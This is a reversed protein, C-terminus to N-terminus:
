AVARTDQIPAPVAVPQAAAKDKTRRSYSAMLWVAVAFVGVIAYEVNGTNWTLILAALAFSILFMQLIASAIAGVVFLAIELVKAPTLKHKM